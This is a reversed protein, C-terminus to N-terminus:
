ELCLFYGKGRINSLIDKGCAQELKKRLKAIHVRLVSSFSDYSEDYIHEAIEESSVVSPYRIMLYELIDFEKATLPILCDKWTAKRSAPNICLQSIQITPQSRGHYRRIVARIRASVEKLEFPKGIYDDAGADLGQLRQEIEDRATIIVVPTDIQNSRLFSLLVLGDQDPLNLDLLIADYANVFAKQSGDQATFATDVCYNDKELGKKMSCALEVHDEIILIRM